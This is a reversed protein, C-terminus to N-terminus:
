AAPAAGAQSQQQEQLRQQYLSEFSMHPLMVPPFGSRALTNSVAERAYPLLTM